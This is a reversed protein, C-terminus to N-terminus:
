QEGPPTSLDGREIDGGLLIGSDHLQFRQRKKERERVKVRM